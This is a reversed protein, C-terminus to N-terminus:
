PWKIIALKDGDQEKRERGKNKKKFNKKEKIEKKNAIM